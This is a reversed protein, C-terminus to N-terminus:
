PWTRPWPTNLDFTSSRSSHQRTVRTLGEARMWHAFAEAHSHDIVLAGVLTYWGRDPRLRVWAEARDTVLHFLCIAGAEEILVDIDARIPVHGVQRTRRPHESYHARQRGCFGPFYTRNASSWCSQHWALAAFSSAFLCSRVIPPAQGMETVGACETQWSLGRNRQGLREFSPPAFRIAPEM